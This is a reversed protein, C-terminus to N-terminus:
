GLFSLTTFLHNKPPWTGIVRILDCIFYYKILHKAFYYLGQKDSVQLILTSPFDVHVSQLYNAFSLFYTKGNRLLM